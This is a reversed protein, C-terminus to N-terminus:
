NFSRGGVFVAVGPYSVAYGLAGFVELLLLLIKEFVVGVVAAVVATITGADAVVLTLTAAAAIAAFSSKVAFWPCLKCLM